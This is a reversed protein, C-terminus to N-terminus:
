RHTTTMRSVAVLTKEQNYYNTETFLFVAKEGDKGREVIDRVRFEATITDGAKVPQFFTYEISSDITQSYGADILTQIIDGIGAIKQDNGNSHGGWYWPSSIFGPPAIIKQYPSLRAYSEDCFLPNNDGVADAFRKIMEREIPFVTKCLPKGIREILQQPIM